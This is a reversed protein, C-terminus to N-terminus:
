SNAGKNAISYSVVRGEDRLLTPDILPHQRLMSGLEPTFEIRGTPSQGPGCPCAGSLADGKHRDIFELVLCTRHSTNSCYSGRHRANTDFVSVLDRGYRIEVVAAADEPQSIRGFFRTFEGADVRYRQRHSRDIVMTSPAGETAEVGVFMKLRHGVNDTHWGESIDFQQQRSFDKKWLYADDLRANGGLYAVVLEVLRPASLVASVASPPLARTIANGVANLPPLDAVAGDLLAALSTGFVNQSSTLVWGRAMLEDIGGGSLLPAHRDLERIQRERQKKEAYHQVGYVFTKALKLTRDISNM